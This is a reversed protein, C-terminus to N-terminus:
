QALPLIIARAHAIPTARRARHRSANTQSIALGRGEIPLGMKLRLGGRAYRSMTIHEYTDFVTKQWRM